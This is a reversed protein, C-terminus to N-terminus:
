ENIEMWNIIKYTKYNKDKFNYLDDEYWYVSAEKGKNANFNELADLYYMWLIEHEQGEEDVIIVFAYQDTKLEKIKGRIVNEDEYPEEVYEEYEETMTSDAPYMYDSFSDLENASKEFNYLMFNFFAPCSKAWIPFLDFTIKELIEMSIDPTFDDDGLETFIGLERRYEFVKKAVCDRSEDSKMTEEAKEVDSPFCECTELAIKRVLAPDIEQAFSLQACGLGFLLTIMLQIKKM